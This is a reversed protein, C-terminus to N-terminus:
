RPSLGFNVDIDRYLDVVPTASVYGPAAIAVTFRGSDLNTFEFRGSSDSWVTQNSNAGNIVTLQAGPIPDGVRANALASVSGSFRLSGASPAVSSVNACAQCLCLCLLLLLLNPRMM